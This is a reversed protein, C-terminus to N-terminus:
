QLTDSREKAQHALLVRLKLGGGWACFRLLHHSPKGLDDVRHIWDAIVAAHRMRIFIQEFLGFRHEGGIGNSRQQM